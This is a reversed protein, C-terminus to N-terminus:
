SALFKEVNQPVQLNRVKKVAAWSKIRKQTLHGTVVGEGDTEKLFMQINKKKNIGSDELHDTRNLNESWIKWTNRQQYHTSHLGM